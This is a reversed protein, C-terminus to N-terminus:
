NSFSRVISEFFSREKYDRLNRNEPMKALNESTSDLDVRMPLSFQQYRDIHFPRLKIMIDKWIEAPLSGGTVGELPSNDDKGMWVGVIFESSFGIFWADRARQTTGTKGAM